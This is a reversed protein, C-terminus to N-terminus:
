KKNELRKSRYYSIVMLTTEAALFLETPFDRERRRKQSRRGESPVIQMQMLAVHM